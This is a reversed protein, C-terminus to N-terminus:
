MNECRDALRGVTWLDCILARFPAHPATNLRPNSRCCPAATAESTTMGVSSHQFEFDGLLGLSWGVAPRGAGAWICICTCWRGLVVRERAEGPKAWFRGGCVCRMRRDGGLCLSLGLVRVWCRGLGSGLLVRICVWYLHGSSREGLGCCMCLQVKGRREAIGCYWM